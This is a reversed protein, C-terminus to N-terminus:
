TVNGSADANGYLDGIHFGLDRGYPQGLTLGSIASTSALGFNDYYGAETWDQRGNGADGYVTSRYGHVRMLAYALSSSTARNWLGWLFYNVEEPRYVYGAVTVTSFTRGNITV